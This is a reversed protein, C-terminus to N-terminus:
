LISWIGYLISSRDLSAGRIGRLAVRERIAESCSSTPYYLQRCQRLIMRATEVLEFYNLINSFSLKIATEEGEISLIM